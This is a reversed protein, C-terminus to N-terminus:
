DNEAHVQYAFENDLKAIEILDNEWAKAAEAREEPTSDLGLNAQRIANRRLHRDIAERTGQNDYYRM